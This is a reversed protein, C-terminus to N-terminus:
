RSSRVRRTSRGTGAAPGRACSGAHPTAVEQARAVAHPRDSPCPQVASQPDVGAGVLAEILATSMGAPPALDLWYATGEDAEVRQRPDFGKERLSAAARTANQVDAFPGVSLCAPSSVAPPQSGFPQLGAKADAERDTTAPAVTHSPVFTAPTPRPTPAQWPLIKESVPRDSSAVLPLASHRIPNCSRLILVALFAATGAAFLGAARKRGGRTARSDLTPRRTTVLQAPQAPPENTVSPDGRRKAENRRARARKFAESEPIRTPPRPGPSAGIPATPRPTAVATDPMSLTPPTTEAEWASDLVVHPVRQMRRRPQPTVEPEVYGSRVLNIASWVRRFNIPYPLTCFLGFLGLEGKLLNLTSPRAAFIRLTDPANVVVHSLVELGSGDGLKECALVLDFQARELLAIAAVKTAAAEITLDEAFAGAARAVADARRGAVLLRM